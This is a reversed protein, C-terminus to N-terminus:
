RVKPIYEDILATIDAIGIPTPIEEIQVFEKWQDAEEYASLTGALVYLTYKKKDVYGFVTKKCIPPEQHM